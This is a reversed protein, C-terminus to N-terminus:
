EERKPKEKVKVEKIIVKGLAEIKKYRIEIDLNDLDDTLYYKM